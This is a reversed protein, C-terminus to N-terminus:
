ATGIGLSVFPAKTDGRSSSTDNGDTDKPSLGITKTTTVTLILNLLIVAGAVLSAIQADNLPIDM